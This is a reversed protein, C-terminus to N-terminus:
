FMFGSFSIRTSIKLALPTVISVDASLDRNIFCVNMEIGYQCLVMTEKSDLGMIPNYCLYKVYWLNRVTRNPACLVSRMGIGVVSMLMKLALALLKAATRATILLIRIMVNSALQDEM